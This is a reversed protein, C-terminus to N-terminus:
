GCLTDFKRIFAKQLDRSIALANGYQKIYEITAAEFDDRYVTKTDMCVIDVGSDSKGKIRWGNKTSAEHLLGCRVSSYFDVAEVESFKDSFPERKTLFDIFCQKSGNYEHAQLENKHCRRYTKGEYCSELFEILSCLLTMITFGYGHYSDDNRLSQIPELYRSQVRGWFFEKFAKRWELEHSSGILSERAKYWDEVTKSDTIYM